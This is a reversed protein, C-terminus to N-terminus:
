RGPGQEDAKERRTGSIRSFEVDRATSRAYLSGFSEAIAGMDKEPFLHFEGHSRIGGSRRCDARSCHFNRKENRVVRDVIM